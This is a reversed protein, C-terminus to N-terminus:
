LLQPRVAKIEEFLVILIVVAGWIWGFVHLIDMPNGNTISINFAAHIAIAGIIGVVLAAAKLSWSHYFTYGLHLRHLRLQGCARPRSRHLAHRRDV